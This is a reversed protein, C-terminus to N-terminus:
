PLATIDYRRWFITLTMAWYNPFTRGPEGAGLSMEVIKLGGVDQERFLQQLDHAHQRALRSGTGAPVFVHLYATGAEEWLNEGPAGTTEQGFSDGFVEAYVFADPDGPLEQLENEFWVPTATWAEALRNKIADFATPSSM